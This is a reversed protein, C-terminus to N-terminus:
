SAALATVYAFIWLSVAEVRKPLGVPEPATGESIVKPEPRANEPVVSVALPDPPVTVDITAPVPNVPPEEECSVGAADVAQGEALQQVHGVLHERLVHVRLLPRLEVRHESVLQRRRRACSRDRVRM